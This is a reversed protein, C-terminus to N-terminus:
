AERLTVEGPIPVQQMTGSQTLVIDATGGNLQVNTVNTVGDVGVLAALVQSLYVTAAYQIGTNGVPTGWGRRIGLLYAAVAEQAQPLVQGLTYGAALNMAASVAVTVTEPATITVQAGIPATGLGMGQPTPDIEEQISAVLTASAPLLDAGLVSCKVTGGGNWTPYIQVAGVGDISMIKTRYAAINGGFPRENLASILRARLDDDSEQDDGPVLIDTIQATTLGQIFTIPLIPGSYSNGIEGPTEATLQYQGTSVRQTAVFNISQSGSVTSFRAGIPIEDLNFVGLRVAPSAPYRTLGALVALKNLDDGVATQVFGSAQVQDLALYFEELAYAAPGLATQIMGGERKDFQDSVEALMAALIAAYTKGSFDIM